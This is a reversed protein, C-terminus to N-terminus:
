SVKVNETSTMIIQLYSQVEVLDFSNLGVFRPVLVFNLYYPYLNQAQTQQGGSIEDVQHLYLRGGNGFFNVCPHDLNTRHGKENDLRQLENWSNQNQLPRIIKKFNHFYISMQM